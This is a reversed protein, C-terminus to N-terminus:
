SPFPGAGEGGSGLLPLEERVGPFNTQRRFANLMREAVSHPATCSSQDGLWFFMGIVVAGDGLIFGLYHLFVLPAIEWSIQLGM